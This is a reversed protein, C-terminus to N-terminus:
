NIAEVANAPVWGQVQSGAVALRTWHQRTELFKVETGSHLNFETVYQAGPGSTVNVEDTVIVGQPYTNEMYMRSGLGFASVILILVAVGLAYQLAERVASAKQTSNFLIVLFVVAIWAALAVIALENLSFWDESFQAVHEIFRPEVVEQDLRDVIQSRALNLNAEIDGDRPASQEARRFNLIARGMDGQKFYASGLNYYLASDQYGQDILQQYAQAAPVFQGAEYLQNATAMSQGATASSNALLLVQQTLVIATILVTTLTIVVIIRKM